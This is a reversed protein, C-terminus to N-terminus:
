LFMSYADCCGYVVRRVKSHIHKACKSSKQEVKTKQTEDDVTIICVLGSPEFPVVLYPPKQNRVRGSTQHQLLTGLIIQRQNELIELEVASLKFYM